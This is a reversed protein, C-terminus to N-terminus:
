YIYIFVFPFHFLKYQMILPLSVPSLQAIRFKYYLYM